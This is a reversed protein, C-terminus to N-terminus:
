IRIEDVEAMTFTIGRTVAKEDDYVVYGNNDTMYLSIIRDIKTGNIIIM